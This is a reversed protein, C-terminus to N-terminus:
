MTSPRSATVPDSATSTDIDSPRAGQDAVLDVPPTRDDHADPASGAMSRRVHRDWSLLRMARYVLVLSGVWLAGFAVVIVRGREAAHVSDILGIVMGCSTVFVALAPATAWGRLLGVGTIITGILAASGLVQVWIRHEPCLTDTFLITSFVAVLGAGVITTLVPGPGAPPRGPGDHETWAVTDTSRWDAHSM